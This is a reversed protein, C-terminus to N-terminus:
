CSAGQLHGATLNSGAVQSNRTRSELWQNKKWTDPASGFFTETRSTFQKLRSSHDSPLVVSGRLVSIISENVSFLTESFTANYGGSHAELKSSASYESDFFFGMCVKHSLKTLRPSFESLEKLTAKQYSSCFFSTM